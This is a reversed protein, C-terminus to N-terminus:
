VSVPPAQPSAAGALPVIGAAVPLVALVKFDPFEPLRLRVFVGQAAPPAGVHLLPLCFLCHGNHDTQPAKEPQGDHGLVLLGGETCIEIRDPDFAAASPPALAAGFVQIALLVLVV